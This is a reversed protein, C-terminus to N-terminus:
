YGTLLSVFVGEGRIFASVAEIQEPKLGSFGMSAVTPKTLTYLAIASLKQAEMRQLISQNVSFYYCTRLCSSGHYEAKSVKM